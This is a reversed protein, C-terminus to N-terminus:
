FSGEKDFFMSVTKFLVSIDTKISRNEIYLLDYYITEYFKLDGRGYVQAFGTIGPKVSFKKLMSGKYYPLMEMMEPRPGVLAMKGTIVHWFNPLEDISTKRLWKGQPTVRPDDEFQLHLEKLESQDFEDYNCLDPFREKADIYHTRLKIFTFPTSGMAIRDQKFLIPGETGRKILIGAIIIIPIFFILAILSLLVEIIHYITRSLVSSDVTKVTKNTLAESSIKDAPPLSRKNWKFLTM